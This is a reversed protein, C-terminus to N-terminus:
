CSLISHNPSADGADDSDGAADDADDPGPRRIDRRPLLESVAEAGRFGYLAFGYLAIRAGLAGISAEWGQHTGPGGLVAKQRSICCFVLVESSGGPDRPRPRGGQCDSEAREAGWNSTGGARGSKNRYWDPKVDEPPPLGESRFWRGQSDQTARVASTSGVSFEPHPRSKEPSTTSESRSSRISVEVTQSEIDPYKSRIGYQKWGCFRMQTQSPSPTRM